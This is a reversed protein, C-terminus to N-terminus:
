GKKGARRTKEARLKAFLKAALGPKNVQKARAVALAESPVDGTIVSGSATLAGRGVTVPAVLMTDSGIFVDEGVTTRHKMVGDYNCTVTGAGINTRAGIDADGIYTLHGVKVGEALVSNKIEVFNGVHVDESLEAGPRLRAFPGVTAGRSIHCGELHCFAEIVAGTEVTVGTGFVVNPGIVVDAGVFTDLAFYVTAPDVMSVGNEFAEERCLDQFLDEARALEFRDNIGLTEEEDCTVVEATMGKARAAAVIDTLYYEGAANDNNLGQVLETLVVADAAIVGSNCLTIAREEDSADKFEVIRELGPGSAILRGYRGPEETEFGLVTVAADSESLRELTEARIFPTDGYLVIVRGDFGDLCPLAQAVAHGTGLQEEQLVCEAQPAWHEVAAQVQQAGHGTVVVIREPELARGAALAHAVLPARGVQHLVKPLDSNMRTGKGAALVILANAM